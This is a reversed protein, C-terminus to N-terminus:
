HSWKWCEELLHNHLSIFKPNFCNFREQSRLIETLKLIRAWQYSALDLIILLVCLVNNILLKTINVSLQGLFVRPLM